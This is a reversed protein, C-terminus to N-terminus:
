EYRSILAEEERRARMTLTLFWQALDLYDNFREKKPRVEFIVVFM